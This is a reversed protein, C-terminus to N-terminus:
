REGGHEAARHRALLVRCDSERSYDGEANAAQQENSLRVCEACAPAAQVPDPTRRDM